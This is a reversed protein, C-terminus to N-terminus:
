REKVGNLVIKNKSDLYADEQTIPIDTGIRDVERQSIGTLDRPISLRPVESTISPHLYADAETESENHKEFGQSMFRNLTMHNIFINPLLFKRVLTPSQLWVHGLSANTERNGNEAAKDQDRRLTELSRTNYKILPDLTSNLCMHYIATFMTFVVMLILPGLAGISEGTAIAFLGILCIEAVYLGVFVQQLARPYM